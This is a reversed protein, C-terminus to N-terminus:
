SSRGAFRALATVARAYTEQTLDDAVASGALHATFRWVDAQTERVGVELARRDGRAAALALTTTREDDRNRGSTVSPCRLRCGRSGPVGSPRSSPHSSSQSARIATPG